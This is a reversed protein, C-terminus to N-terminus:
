SYMKKMKNRLKTDPKAKNKGKGKIQKNFASPSLIGIDEAVKKAGFAAKFAAKSVPDANSKNVDKILINDARRVDKANVANMYGIDHKKCADDLGRGVDVGIDGRELRKQLVTGPGCYNARTPGQNTMLLLHHEGAFGPKYEPSENLSLGLQKKIDKIPEVIGRASERIYQLAKSINTDGIGGGVKVGDLDVYEDRLLQTVVEQGFKNIHEVPLIDYKGFPPARKIMNVYLPHHNRRTPYVYGFSQRYHTKSVALM